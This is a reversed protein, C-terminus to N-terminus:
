ESMMCESLDHEGSSRPSETSFSSRPSASPTDIESSLSDEDSDEPKILGDRQQQAREIEIAEICSQMEQM